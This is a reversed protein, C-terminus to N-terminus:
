GGSDSCDWICLGIFNAMPCSETCRRHDSKSLMDSELNM